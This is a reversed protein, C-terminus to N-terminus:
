KRKEGGKVEKMIKDYPLTNIIDEKEAWGRRAVSVGYEMMEMEELAHADSDIVMKVGRKVAERVLYDPLDLRTPWASIELIKNKKQCFAFIEEWDFEMGERRNLLRGTPHGLICAKPHRLARLVRKTAEDRSQRFSSHISAIAFDLHELGKEPVALDGDPKIDIELGNLLRVSQVLKKNSSNFQEIVEKKKKLLNIIQKESHQSVSPNHESLGIYEYGMKKAKEVIEKISAMGLDHSPEIPYNSHIHLDGKIERLEVLKPLQKGQAVEIEGVDERLEPPIWEMGLEQYFEAETRYKKVGKKEMKIGYESLSWGKKQAIERLHINHQKSGTYHQLLAGYSEPSQTKLDIQRKDKTMIRATNGGSAVVEKTKPYQCFHKIAEASKKTAVGFDIDGVTTMRRRLSGLPDIREIASCQKMYGIIEKALRGAFPLVMREGGKGRKGVEGLGELIARESEEGFGEIKRIRGSEAAKKLQNLATEAKTIKLKKALKYATKAGVGPIQLFEFMAPPFQGMIKQFHKVKGTRFLEDLHFAMAKGVGPLSELKGDDWLDKLTSTAHEVSVAAEEYAKVRFQQNGKIQYAAAMGKLLSAIEQNSMRKSTKMM